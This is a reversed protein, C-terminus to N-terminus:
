RADAQSSTLAARRVPPIAPALPDTSRPPTPRRFPDVQLVGPRGGRAKLLDIRLKGNQPTLAMRVAAMSPEALASMPRFLFLLANGAEAALQLRRLDLGDAGANWYLVASVAGSRLSQEAAWQAEAGGTDIWAIRELPLGSQALAPAYPVFPPQVFAIRKEGALRRLAPLLLSIEGIGPAPSLIEVLSGRPWGQGPLQRDLALHGSAVAPVAATEVGIWVGRVQRLQALRPNM